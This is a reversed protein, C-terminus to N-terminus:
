PQQIDKEYGLALKEPLDPLVIGGSLVTKMAEKISLESEIVDDELVFALMGSTPNPVTPIYVAIRRKGESNAHGFHGTVFGMAIKGPGPWEIFVVRSYDHDGTTSLADRAERAVLYIGKVVPVRSWFADQAARMRNGSMFAGIVYLLGFTVVVGFGTFDLVTDRVIPRFIDDIGFFFFSLIIYSIILPVSVVFGSITSRWIHQEIRWFFSGLRRTQKEESM